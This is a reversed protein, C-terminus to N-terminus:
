VRSHEALKILTEAFAPPSLHTMKPSLRPLRPSGDPKEAPYRVCHTPRGQGWDLDFPAQAGVYLLWTRKECPHGYAAQRVECTWARAHVQLWRGLVPKSVGFHKWAQTLAPHELVGGFAALSRLASQFCGGDEGRKLGHQHERIAALKSWAGCPPHCVIPDPGAYERADRAEDWCNEVGLLGPYPGEADIFLAQVKSM